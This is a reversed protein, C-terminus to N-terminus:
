QKTFTYAGAALTLTTATVTYAGNLASGDSSLQTADIPASAMNNATNDCNNIELWGTDFTFYLSNGTVTHHFNYHRDFVCSSLTLNSDTNYTTVRDFDGNGGVDSGILKITRLTSANTQTTTDPDTKFIGNLLSATTVMDGTSAQAMDSSSQMDKNAPGPNNCAIVLVFVAPSFTRMTTPEKASVWFCASHWRTDARFGGLQAGSTIQSVVRASRQTM